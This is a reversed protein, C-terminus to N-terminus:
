RFRAIGRSNEFHAANFIRPLRLDPKTVFVQTYTVRRATTTVSHRNCTSYEASDILISSSISSLHTKGNIDLWENRTLRKSAFM